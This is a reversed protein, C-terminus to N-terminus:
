TTVLGARVTAGDEIGVFNVVVGVIVEAGWVGVLEVCEAKASVMEDIGDAVADADADDVGPGETLVVFAEGLIVGACIAPSDTAATAANMMAM